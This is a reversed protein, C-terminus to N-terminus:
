PAARAAADSAARDTVRGVLHLADLDSVRLESGRQHHIRVLPAAAVNEAETDVRSLLQLRHVFLHDRQIRDERLSGDEADVVGRLVVGLWDLLELDTLRRVVDLDQSVCLLSM